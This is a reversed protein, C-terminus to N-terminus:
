PRREPTTGGPKLLQENEPPLREDLVDARFMGTDVQLKSHGDSIRPSPRPEATRELREKKVRFHPRRELYAIRKSHSVIRDFANLYEEYVVGSLADCEQDLVRQVYRERVREALQRYAERAAIVQEACDDFSERAPNLSEIMLELVRDASAYVDVLLGMSEDDFWVGKASKEKTIQVLAEAHDAIREIDQSAKILYQLILSQRRSLTRQSLARLYELVADNLLNVSAEEKLVEPFPRDTLKILGMMSQRVMKRATIAMRRTELIVAVIAMEPRELHAEDLYSRSAPPHRSPTLRQVLVAYAGVFPLFMLGNVAQVLTHANAVQRTLDDSIAPLVQLYLPAMLAALLAGLVNFLLHALALRRAEINTGLAALLTTSCTGIHAGLVLPFAASLDTFVGASALAFLMGITAGSSQVLATVVTSAVIGFAMGLVTTGDTHALFVEFYGAQKLPHIARSMTDLGLFLLGFGFLLMGWHRVADRRTALNVILGLGIALYCYEGIKFSILQMSLTTGVNAGLMVPIAAVLSLLGANIFGVLMVTAPGSHILAGLLTGAGAGTLRNGTLRNLLTRLRTGALAELRETMLKMGYVFLGLGGLLTALILLLAHTGM